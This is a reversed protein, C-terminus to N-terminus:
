KWVTVDRPVVVSLLGDETEVRIAVYGLMDQPGLVVTFSELLSLISLVEFTSWSPLMPLNTLDSIDSVQSYNKM